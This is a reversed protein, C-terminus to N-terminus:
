RRPSRMMLNEPDLVRIQMIAQGQMMNALVEKADQTPAPAKAAKNLKFLLAANGGISACLLLALLLATYNVQLEM